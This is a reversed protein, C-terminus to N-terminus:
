QDHWTLRALSAGAYYRGLIANFPLGQHALKQAGSQSMSAGLHGHAEASVQANSAYPSELIGGSYSLIIWRTERTASRSAPTTSKEGAFVQWRTTDGLHYATTAPRALHAMAYSRAAVAQAKLAEGHWSSPMEAGVVSAVYTELDLSIVPLWDGQGKLLSVDSQYHQQNIQGPGGSCHIEHQPSSAITQMLKQAPIAAGHQSRCLVNPGPRFASIPSQSVLGVRIELPVHDSGPPVKPVVSSGVTSDHDLLDALSSRPQDPRQSLPRALWGILAVM